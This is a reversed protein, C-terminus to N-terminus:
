QLRSAFAQLMSGLSRGFDENYLGGLPPAGEFPYCDSGRTLSALIMVEYSQYPGWKFLVWVRARQLSGGM